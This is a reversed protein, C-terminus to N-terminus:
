RSAILPPRKGPTVYRPEHVPPTDYSIAAGRRTANQLKEWVNGQGYRPGAGRVDASLESFPLTPVAPMMPGALEGGVRKAHAVIKSMLGDAFKDFHNM